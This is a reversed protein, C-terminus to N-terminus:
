AAAKVKSSGQLTKQLRKIAGALQGIEDRRDIDASTSLDGKSIRDTMEKLEAIPRSISRRISIIFLAAIIISISVAGLSLARRQNFRGVRTALLDDLVGVSADYLAYSSDLTKLGNATVSKLDIKAFDSPGADLVQRRLMDDFAKVAEIHTRIPPSLKGRLAPNENVATELGNNITELAPEIRALIFAILQKKPESNEHTLILDAAHANAQGILQGLEPLKTIVTDMAYYSDLDPDLILNSANEVQIILPLITKGVFDDYVTNISEPKASSSNRLISSDLIKNSGM